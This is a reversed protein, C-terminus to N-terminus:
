DTPVALGFMALDECITQQNGSAEAAVDDVFLAVSVRPAIILGHDITRILALRMEFTALGSGATLGRVAIVGAATADGIRVGKTTGCTTLSLRLIYLPYQLAHDERVQM